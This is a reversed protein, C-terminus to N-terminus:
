KKHKSWQGTSRGSITRRYQCKESKWMGDNSSSFNIGITLKSDKKENKYSKLESDANNSIINDM